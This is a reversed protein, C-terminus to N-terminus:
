DLTSYRTLHLTGAEATREFEVQLPHGEVDRQYATADAESAWLTVVLWDEGHRATTRRLFGPQNPVLETQVRRDLTLFAEDTVGEALRFTTIEVISM